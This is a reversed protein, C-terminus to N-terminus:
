LSALQAFVQLTYKMSTSATDSHVESTGVSEPIVQYCSKPSFIQM